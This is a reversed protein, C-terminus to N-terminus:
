RLFDKVSLFANVASVAAPTAAALRAPAVGADAPPCWWGPVDSAKSRTAVYGTNWFRGAPSSGAVAVTASIEATLSSPRVRIWVSASARRMPKRSM